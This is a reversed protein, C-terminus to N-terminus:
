GTLMSAVLGTAIEDKPPREGRVERLYEVAALLSARADAALKSAKVFLEPDGPMRVQLEAIWEGAVKVSDVTKVFHGAAVGFCWRSAALQLAASAIFTSAAADIEGFRKCFEAAQAQRYAEAFQRYPEFTSDRELELLGLSDMLKRKAAKAHGGKKGLAKATDRTLRGDRKAPPSPGSDPPM